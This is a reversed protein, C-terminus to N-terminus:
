QWGGFGDSLAKESRALIEASERPLAASRGAEEAAAAIFRKLDAKPVVFLSYYAYEKTGAKDGAAKGYRKLAWWEDYKRFGSFSTETISESVLKMYTMLKEKDGQDMGEFSAKVRSSIRSSIESPASFTQAWRRLGELSKGSEEFKFVALGRFEPTAELERADAAAWAPPPVGEAKGKYDVFAYYASGGAAKSASAEPAAGACSALQVMAAAVAAMLALVSGRRFPSERITIM